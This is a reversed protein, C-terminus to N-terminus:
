SFNKDNDLVKCYFKYLCNKCQKPTKPEKPFNGSKYCNVMKEQIANVEKEVEKIKPDEYKVIRWSNPYLFFIRFYKIDINFKSQILKKYIISQMKYGHSLVPYTNTKWDIATETMVNFYDIIGQFGDAYVDIETIPSEIGHIINQYEWDSFNELCNYAKKLGDPPLTLDWIEKLIDYVKILIQEKTRENSFHNKYYRDIANHVYSGIDLVDHNFFMPDKRNLYCYWAYPCNRFTGM